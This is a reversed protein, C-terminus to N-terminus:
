VHGQDRLKRCVKCLRYGTDKHYWVNDGILEHGRDCHTKRANIATPADGRYVNEKQDVVEMHDPNVCLTNKCLHDIVMGDQIQGYRFEYALRHAVFMTQQFRFRGYGSVKRTTAGLWVWCDQSKDVKSWFRDEISDTVHWGKAM